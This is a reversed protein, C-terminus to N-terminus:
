VLVHIINFVRMRAKYRTAKDREVGLFDILVEGDCKRLTKAMLQINHHLCKGRNFKHGAMEELLDERKTENSANDSNVNAVHVLLSGLPLPKPMSHREDPPVKDYWDKYAQQARSM